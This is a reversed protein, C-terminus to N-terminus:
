NNSNDSSLSGDETNKRKKCRQILSQIALVILTIIWTLVIIVHFYLLVIGSFDSSPPLGFVNRIYPLTGCYGNVVFVAWFVIRMSFLRLLACSFSPKKYILTLIVISIGILALIHLLLIFIPFPLPMYGENLDSAIIELWYLIFGSASGYICNKQWTKM